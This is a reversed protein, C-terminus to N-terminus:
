VHIGILRIDLSIDVSLEFLTAALATPRLWAPRATAMAPVPIPAACRAFYLLPGRILLAEDFSYSVIFLLKIIFINLGSASASSQTDHKRLLLQWEYQLSFPVPLNAM